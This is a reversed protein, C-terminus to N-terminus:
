DNKLDNDLIKVEFGFNCHPLYSCDRGFARCAQDNKPWSIRSIYKRWNEISNMENITEQEWETALVTNVPQEIYVPGILTADKKGVWFQIQGFADAKTCVAQGLCQDDFVSLPASAYFTDGAFRQTFTKLKIDWTVRTPREVVFDPKSQYRLGDPFYKFFRQEVEVVKGQVPNARYATFIKKALDLNFIPDKYLDDGGFEALFNPWVTNWFNTDADSRRDQEWHEIPNQCLWTGAAMNPTKPEKKGLVYQNYYRRKCLKWLALQTHSYTWPKEM